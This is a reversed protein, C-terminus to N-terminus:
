VLLGQKEKGRPLQLGKYKETILGNPHLFRVFPREVTDWLLELIEWKKLLLALVKAPYENGTTLYVIGVKNQIIANCESPVILMKKNCSLLLWETKGLLPLIEPDKKSSWGLEVFYRTRYGVLALAQPVGTGL